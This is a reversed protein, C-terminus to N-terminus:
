NLIQAAAVSLSEADNVFSSSPTMKRYICVTKALRDHLARKKSDFGAMIYGIGLPIGSALYGINRLLSQKLSPASLNKESVVFIRFTRKGLTTSFRWTAYTYYMIGIITRILEHMLQFSIPDFFSYFSLESSDRHNILVQYWFIGGLIVFDILFTIFHLLAADILQAVFRIWFGAFHPIKEM